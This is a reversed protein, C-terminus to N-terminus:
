MCACLTAYCHPSKGADEGTCTCDSDKTCEGGVDIEATTCKNLNGGSWNQGEPCCHGSSM